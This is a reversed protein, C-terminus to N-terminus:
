PEIIGRKVGIIAAHARDKARLKSLITKVRSKVTEETVTLKTAIEKNAHGAAILGLVDVERPTLSEDGFRSALDAAITPSVSREGANVRRITDLLENHVVSKLLYARAGAKMARVAQMDGSYTTLVIIRADPSKELIASMANLGGEEPMQLDMLTIDPTHQAFLEIAQRGTAGQAVLQMDPQGDLLAAIGERLLPHDDVILVRIPM